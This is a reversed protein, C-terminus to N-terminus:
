PSGPQEVPVPTGSRAFLWIAIARYAHCPRPRGPERPFIDGVLRVFVALRANQAFAGKPLHVGHSANQIHLFNVQLLSDRSVMTAVPLLLVAQATGPLSLAKERGRRRGGKPLDARQTTNQVHPLRLLSAARPRCYQNCSWTVHPTSCWDDHVIADCASCSVLYQIILM